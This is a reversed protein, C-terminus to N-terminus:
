YVGEFINVVTPTRRQRPAFSLHRSFGNYTKEFEVCEKLPPRAADLVFKLAEFSADTTVMDWVFLLPSGSAVRATHTEVAIKYAEQSNSRAMSSSLRQM